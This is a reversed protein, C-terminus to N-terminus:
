AGPLDITARLGGRPGRDFRLAGGHRRVIASVISLGLGSGGTARSRSPDIRVLREGLMPLMEDPVGAGSDEVELRAGGEHPEARVAIEGDPPTYRLANTLLNTVIQEIRHADVRARAPAGECSIRAGTPHLAAIREAVRRAIAAVDASEPRLVVDPDELRALDRLDGILRDLRASEEDLSQLLRARTEPSLSADPDALMEVTGMVSSVPTALEHVLDAFLRRRQADARKINATIEEVARRVSEFSQKVFVLDIDPPAPLPSDVDGVAIRELREAIQAFAALLARTRYSVVTAAFGWSLFPAIALPLGLALPRPLSTTLLVAQLTGMGVLALGSLLFAKSSISLRIM